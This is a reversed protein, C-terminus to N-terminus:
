IVPLSVIFTTGEGPATHLDISGGHDVEVIQRALAMGLGTGKGAAKTTFGQEFVRARLAESMGPGNDQIEIRLRPGSVITTRITIKNPDAQIEQYSLDGNKEEFCDIANALINMFVQNLKGPFCEIDSIAGYEKVIEITPRRANARLRYRLILLTSDLGSHVDFCQKHTSHERRSFIRLSQSINQITKASRTMSGILKPLDETIFEIDLEQLRVNLDSNEPLEINQYLQLIEAIEDIYEQTIQLNAEISGLPNNVEHAVGAILEGLSAMKETQVLHLQADKLQEYQQVLTRNMTQLQENQQALQAAQDLNTNQLQRRLRYLEIHTAVRASAEEAQFPKTIYDVGGISFAKVKDIAENLASIFIIPIDCTDDRNKLAQCVEFGDMEPMQIDLLILDPSCRDLGALALKGSPFPRVRYGQNGLLELLLRLNAPTDDIVIVEGIPHAQSSIV